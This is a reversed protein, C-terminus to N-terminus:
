PNAGANAPKRDLLAQGRGWDCPKTALKLDLTGGAMIEGQSLWAHDLPRGNLAAKCIYVAGPGYGSASIVFQRGSELRITARPQHPAHVYYLDSGLKPFLGIRNFVYHSGMAGSDEDGPYAKATFRAFVRDAWYSALDPRGVEIFLWPTAFSPENTIDILGSDLAHGLRQIFRERGGMLDVMGAVDHLAGYSYIWATGEYFGVNNYTKGDWGLKPDIPQFTGDANRPILFGSYGDSAADPNWVKRWNESRQQLRAATATDGIREALRAAYFDNLAYALTSSGSKARQNDPEPSQDGAAFFGELLYRPSRKMRANFLVVKAARDWDVGPVGRLLGEGIVNDVEDGGQGVHYNRGAIFATDAAGFREFTRVFSAIAGAYDSPRILSMLPFATRNTDWLTYHDDWFPTGRDEDPRDGTRDRPLTTAHYLATAFRRQDAEPVGEIRIRGLAKDWAAAAAARVPAPDWGPIEALHRRAMDASTFSVAIKMAVPQGGTDGFGLWAALRQDRGSAAAATDPRAAGDIATGWSTPKRDLAAAFWIDVLAPSWYGKARVRGTVTGSAPDIAVDAMDSATLGGVKRTVDFVLSAPQGAPFAFRYLAADHAPAIEVRTAYRTLTVGYGDAAAREDAKPSAHAAEDLTVPGTQPSVLFTGYTTIGGSGQSHLQAFGTIPQAPDYGANSAVITEPSPHISGAPLTPGIITDGQNDNGIGVTPDVLASPRADPAAARPAANVAPSLAAALLLARVPLPFTM